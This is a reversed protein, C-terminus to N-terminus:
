FRERGDALARPYFLGHDRLIEHDFLIRYRNVYVENLKNEKDVGSRQKDASNSRIKCLDESQIGELYMNKLVCEPLFLDEYLKYIDTADTNQLKEGAVKVVLRSVLTRAVNNVLFNNEEGSVALNFDLAFSGPVLLLGDKRKPVAVRLTEGPSAKNPNFTVRHKIMDAKLALPTKKEFTPRLSESIVFAM